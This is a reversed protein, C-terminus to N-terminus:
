RPEIDAIHRSVSLWAGVLGLLAGAALMLIAYDFSLYQIDFRYDYLGILKTAPKSLLMMSAQVIALGCIAGGLGYWFGTYLLPRGVFANTGGVLKIVIIEQKRSEIELRITNGTVLLVAVALLVSLVLVAQQALAIIAQLRQVWHLDVQVMDVIPTGILTQRLTDVAGLEGVSSHLSLELVAPLPNQPLSELIDGFGSLSQFEALAADRSIYRVDSLLPHQSLETQLAIAQAESTDLRLYVSLKANGGWGGSIAEVNKLMVYMGIPLSMAIGIVLWTLLSNSWARLLRLLTEACARQHNHCWAYIRQRVGIGSAKQAGRERTAPASRSRADTKKPTKIASAGKSGKANRNAM